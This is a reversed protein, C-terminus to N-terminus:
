NIGNIHLESSSTNSKVEVCAKKREGKKKFKRVRFLKMEM